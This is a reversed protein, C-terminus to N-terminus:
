GGGGFFLGLVWLFEQFLQNQEELAFGRLQKHRSASLALQAEPFFRGACFLAGPAGALKSGWAVLRRGMRFASIRSRM